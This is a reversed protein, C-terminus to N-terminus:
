PWASKGWGAHCRPPSSGLTRIPTFTLAWNPHTKDPPVFDHNKAEVISNFGQFNHDWASKRSISGFIMWFQQHLGWPKPTGIKYSVVKHHGFPQFIDFPPWAFIQSIADHIPIFVPFIVWSSLLQNPCISMTGSQCTFSIQSSRRSQNISNDKEAHWWTGQPWSVYSNFMAM